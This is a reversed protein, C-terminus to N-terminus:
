LMQFVGINTDAADAPDTGVTKGVTGEKGLFYAVGTRRLFALVAIHEAETPSEGGTLDAPVADTQFAGAVNVSPKIVAGVVIAGDCLGHVIADHKYTEVVKDGASLGTMDIAERSFRIRTAVPQSSTPCVKWGNTTDQYGLIGAAITTAAMRIAQVDRLQDLNDIDGRAM